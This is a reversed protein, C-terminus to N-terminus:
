AHSDEMTALLSDLSVLAVGQLTKALVRGRAETARALEKWAVGQRNPFVIEGDLPLMDARRGLLELACRYQARTVPHLLLDIDSGPKIYAQGTLAQLAVSGYVRVDLGADAADHVIAALGPRWASPVAAIARALPLASTASEIDTVEASFAIRPKSGDPRPPLPLGLAVQGPPVGAGLRTVVAPWGAAGWEALAASDPVPAAAAAREWGRPTLWVLDHRAFM